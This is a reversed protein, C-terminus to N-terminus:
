RTATRNRVREDAIARLLDSRQNLHVWVLMVFDIKTVPVSSRTFRPLRHTPHHSFVMFACLRQAIRVHRLVIEVRHM